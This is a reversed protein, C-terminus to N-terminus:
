RLLATWAIVKPSGRQAILEHLMAEGEEGALMHTKDGTSWSAVFWQGHRAFQPKGEPPAAALGARETTFLHVGKGVKFCMLSIRRGEWTWTKCGWTQQATLKAPVTPTPASQERLWATLKAPDNGEHNFKTRGAELEDLVGLAHKQWATIEHKPPAFQPALALLLTVVAALAWLQPWWRRPRSVKAGALIRERLGAPASVEALRTAVERDFNQQEEFWQGLAADEKTAGLAEAFTPDEADQGHPRYASLILKAQENM